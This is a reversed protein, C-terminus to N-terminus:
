LAALAEWSHRLRSEPCWRQHTELAHCLYADLTGAARRQIAEDLVTLITWLNHHSLRIEDSWLQPGFEACYPCPCTYPMDGAARGKVSLAGYPTMYWGGRAYHIFSSSDFIDCGLAVYFPIELPDGAGYLHLPVHNPVIRRAQKLVKGIFEVHHGKTFFPVLSGLAIYQVGFEVLTELARGRLELFKGGQQVGALVARDVIGMGERIRKLTADLKKTATTRNDGPTTIVDLPSVVDVGIEQQFAIIKKNSLYLPGSFQQFAGSDTMILGSFGLFDRIGRELVEAKLQRDKYLFFGNTILGRVGFEQELLPITVFPNGNQFVPLFLPTPINRGDATVVPRCPNVSSREAM